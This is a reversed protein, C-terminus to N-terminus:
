SGARRPMLTGACASRTKRRRPGAVDAFFAALSWFQERKWSAFPHNHCQACELRIGLFVRAVGSAINEPKGEKATYYAAPSPDVRRADVTLDTNRGALRATLIERVIRDYGADEIVKKRLWAEFNGAVQRAVDETDAEPM